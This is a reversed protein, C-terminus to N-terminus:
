PRTGKRDVAAHPYFAIMREFDPACRVVEYGSVFRNAVVSLAIDVM